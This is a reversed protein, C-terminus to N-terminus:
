WVKFVSWIDLETHDYFMISENDSDWHGIEHREDTGNPCHEPYIKGTLKSRLYVTGQFEIKKVVDPFDEGEGQDLFNNANNESPSVFDSIVCAFGSSPSVMTRSSESGADRPTTKSAVDADEICFDNELPYLSTENSNDQGFLFSNLTFVDLPSNWGVEKEHFIISSTNEDWIGVERREDSGRPCHFDYIINSTKGRLYKQNDFKWEFVVDPDHENVFNNDNANNFKENKGCYDNSNISLDGLDGSHAGMNAKSNVALDRVHFIITLFESFDLTNANQKRTEKWFIDFEDSTIALGSIEFAFFIEVRGIAGRKSFDLFNFARRLLHLDVRRLNRCGGSDTGSSHLKKWRHLVRRVKMEVEELKKRKLLSEEMGTTLLGIFMTVMIWTLIAVSATFFLGSVIFRAKSNVCKEPWDDYGIVDCGYMNIYMLLSWSDLTLVQFMTLFGLRINGFHAPDNDRFLSCGMAAILTMILFMLGCIMIISRTSSSLASLIIKLTKFRKVIKLLRLLRLMKLAVLYKGGVAAVPIWSVSVILVDFKNWNDNFYKWFYPEAILRCCVDFTFILRIFTNM